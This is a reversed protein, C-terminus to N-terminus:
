GLECRVKRILIAGCHFNISLSIRHMLTIPIIFSIYAVCCSSIFYQGCLLRSWLSFVGVYMCRADKQIYRCIDRYTDTHTDTRIKKRQLCSFNWYTSIVKHHSSVLKDLNSALLLRSGLYTETCVLPFQSCKAKYMSSLVKLYYRQM